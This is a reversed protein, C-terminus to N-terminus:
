RVAELPVAVDARVTVWETTTHPRKRPYLTYERADFRRDPEMDLDFEPYQGVRRGDVTPTEDSRVYADRKM